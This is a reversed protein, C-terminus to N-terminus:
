VDVSVSAALSGIGERGTVEGPVLVLAPILLATGVDAAAAVVDAAAVVVVIALTLTDTPTARACARASSSPLSVASPPRRNM